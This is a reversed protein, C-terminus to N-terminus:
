GYHAGYCCVQAAELASAAASIHETHQIEPMFFRYDM